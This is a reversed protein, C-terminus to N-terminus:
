FDWCVHGTSRGKSTKESRITDTTIKYFGAAPFARKINGLKDINSTLLLLRLSIGTLILSSLLKDTRLILPLKPSHSFQRPCIKFNSRRTNKSMLSSGGCIPSNDRNHFRLVRPHEKCSGNFDIISLLFYLVISITPYKFDTSSSALGYARMFSIITPTCPMPFVLKNSCSLCSPIVLLRGSTLNYVVLSVCNQKNVVFRINRKM